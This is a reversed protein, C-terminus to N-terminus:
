YAPKTNTKRVQGLCFETHPVTGHTHGQVQGEKSGKEANLFFVPCNLKLRGRGRSKGKGATHSPALGKVERLKLLIGAIEGHRRLNTSPNFSIIGSCRGAYQRM